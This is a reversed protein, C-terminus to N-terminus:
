CANKVELFHEVKQELLIKSKPLFYFELFDLKTRDIIVYKDSDSRTGIAVVRLASISFDALM